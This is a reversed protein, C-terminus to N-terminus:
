THRSESPPLECVCGLGLLRSDKSFNRIDLLHGCSATVHQRPPHFSHLGAAVLLVSSIAHPLLWILEVGPVLTIAKLDACTHVVRGRWFSCCLSSQIRPFSGLTM